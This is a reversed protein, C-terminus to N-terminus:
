AVHMRKFLLITIVACGVTMLLRGMWASEPKGAMGESGSAQSAAQKFPRGRCM